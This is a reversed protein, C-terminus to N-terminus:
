ISDDKRKAFEKNILQVLEADGGKNDPHFIKMLDKYRKRLSIGGSVNRFLLSVFEDMNIYGYSTNNYTSQQKKQAEFQKRENALRKRDEELKDFGEQLIKKKKEFFIKEEKLRKQEVSFKHNLTDMDKQYLTKEQVFKDKMEELEAKENQIRISEKFLWLKAKKLEELSEANKVENWDM